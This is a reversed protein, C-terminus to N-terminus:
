KSDVVQDLRLADGGIGTKGHNDGNAELRALQERVDSVRRVFSTEDSENVKDFFGLVYGKSFEDLGSSLLRIQELANNVDEDSASKSELAPINEWMPQKFFQVNLSSGSRESEANSSSPGSKLVRGLADMAEPPPFTLDEIQKRLGGFSNLLSIREPNDIPYPPYMKVITTLEKEMEGLIQGSEELALGLDRLVLATQNLLEQRARLQAFVGASQTVRAAEDNSASERVVPSQIERGPVSRSFPEVRANNAVITQVMVSYSPSVGSTIDAVM